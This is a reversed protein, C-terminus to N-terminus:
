WRAPLGRTDIHTRGKYRGIAILNAYPLSKLYAIVKTVSVNEVRVDAADSEWNNHDDIIHESNKSGKVKANHKRCRACSNVHVPQQFHLRLHELVILLAILM